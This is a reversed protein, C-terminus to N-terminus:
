EQLIKFEASEERTIILTREHPTNAFLWLVSLSHTSEDHNNLELQLQHKFKAIISQLARPSCRKRLKITIIAQFHPQMWKWVPRLLELYFEIAVNMDCVLLDFPVEVDCSTVTELRKKLHRVNPHRIVVDAPDVAMITDCYSALCESWGGPAAGVDLAKGVPVKVMKREIIEKMKFYAKSIPSYDDQAMSTQGDNASIGFMIVTFSGLLRKEFPLFESHEVASARHSACDHTKSLDPFSAIPHLIVHLIHSFDRPHVQTHNSCLTPVVWQHLFDRSNCQVKLAKFSEISDIQSQIAGVLHDIHSVCHTIRWCRKVYPSAFTPIEADEPFMILTSLPIEFAMQLFRERYVDDCEIVLFMGKQYKVIWTKPQLRVKKLYPRKLKVFSFIVM